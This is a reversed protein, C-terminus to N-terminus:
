MLWSAALVAAWGGYNEWLRSLSYYKMGSDEKFGAPLSIFLEKKSEAKENAQDLKISALYLGPPINKKWVWSFIQRSNPYVILSSQSDDIKKNRWDKIDITGKALLNIKNGNELRLKLSDNDIYFDLINLKKMQLDESSKVVNVMVLMGTNFPKPDNSTKLLLAGNYGGSAIEKPASIIYNIEKKQGPKLGIELFEPILWQGLGAKGTYYYLKGSEDKLKFDNVLVSLRVVDKGNNIVNFKGKIKQGPSVTLGIKEPNVNIDAANANVTFFFCFVLCLIVFIITSHKKYAM